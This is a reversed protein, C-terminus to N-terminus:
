GNCWHRSNFGFTLLPRPRNKVRRKTFDKGIKSGASFYWCLVSKCYWSFWCIVRKCYCCYSWLFKEHSMQHFRQWNQRLIEIFLSRKCRGHLLPKTFNISFFSPKVCNIFSVISPWIQVLRLIWMVKRKTFHYQCSLSLSINIWKLIKKSFQIIALYFAVWLFKGRVFTRLLMPFLNQTEILILVILTPFRPKYLTSTDPHWLSILPAGNRKPSIYLNRM